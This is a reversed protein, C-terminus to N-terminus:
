YEESQFAQLQRTLREGRKGAALAAESLRRIQETDAQKTMVELAGNIVGLMQAFDQAVDGTLRGVTEFRRANSLAANLKEIREQMEAQQGQALALSAQMEAQQGQAQALSTQMETQRSQAAALNAQMDSQQAQSQVLNAQMEAHRDQSQMLNAHLDAQQTQAKALSDRLEAQQSLSQSLSAQLEELRAMLADVDVAPPPPVAALRAQADDYAAQWKRVEFQAAAVKNDWETTDLVPPPASVLADIQAQLDERHAAAKGLESALTERQAAAKELEAALNERHGSAKELEATLDEIKDDRDDRTEVLVPALLIDSLQLQLENRADATEKLQAELAAIRADFASTDAVPPTAALADFKAQLYDQASQATALQGQLADLSAQLEANEAVIQPDPERVVVTEPESVPMANMADIEERLAVQTAEAARLDAQLDDVRAKLADNEEIVEPPAERIIVPEPVAEAKAGLLDMEDRLAQQSAEADRLAAQLTDVRTKLFDNEEIIEGPMERIIIPEPVADAKTSLLTMEDRLAAQLAEADRLETQLDEVRAKLATNEEVVEPDPERIVVPEPADTWGYVNPEASKAAELATQYEARATALAETRAEERAAELDSESIQPVIIDADPKRLSTSDFAIGFVQKSGDEAPTSQGRLTIWREQGEKAVVRIEMELTNTRGSLLMGFETDARTQDEDSILTPGGDYERGILRRMGEDEVITDAEADYQWVGIGLGALAAESNRLDQLEQADDDSLPAATPSAEIQPVAQTESKLAMVTLGHEGGEHTRVAWASVLSPLTEGDAAKLGMRISANNHPSTEDQSDGLYDIARQFDEDAVFIQTWNKGIVADRQLDFADLAANNVDLIQGKADLGWFPVTAAAFWHGRWLGTLDDVGEGATSEIEVMASTSGIVEQNGNLIPMSTVSVLVKEHTGHNVILHQFGKVTQGRLTRAIPMMDAPIVRGDPFAIGWTASHFRLGILENDKRGLLLHAARNAFTFKGSNDTEVLAIPVANLVNFMRRELTDIKREAKFLLDQFQRVQFTKLAALVGAGICAFLLLAAVVGLVVVLDHESTLLM